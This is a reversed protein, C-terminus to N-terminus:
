AAAAAAAVVPCIVPIFGQRATLQALLQMLDNNIFL